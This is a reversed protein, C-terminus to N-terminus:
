KQLKPMIESVPIMGKKIGGLMVPVSQGERYVKKTKYKPKAETGNPVQHVEIVRDVLNVIWYVPIRNRAYIALMETRDSKLTTQSIEVVIECDNPGPHHDWYDSKDLQRVVCLDPIPESEALTLPSESRVRWGNLRLLEYLADRLDQCVAVHPPKPIMKPTIYGELLEYRQPGDLYGDDILRHYEEVSFRFTGARKVFLPLEVGPDLTTM